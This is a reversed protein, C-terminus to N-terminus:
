YYNKQILQSLTDNDLNYSLVCVVDDDIKKSKGSSWEYLEGKYNTLSYDILYLVRGDPTLSFDYVDDHIKKSKGDSYVKLTGYEKEENYDTLYYINSADEDYLTIYTTVDYDILSKNIYFDGKSNDVDKYYMIKKDTIFRYYSDHVETDYLEPTGVKGNKISIKYLDGCREEEPINDLFYVATGSDNIVYYSSNNHEINNAKDKVAVNLASNESMSIQIQSEVSYVSTIESLNIKNFNSLDSSKYIIVPSDVAYNYSSNYLFSDTVLKETSGDFYYLSYTSLDFEYTELSERLDDRDMKDYYADLAASYEDYAVEYANYAAEYEDYTDYNWSYPYDPMIPYTILSDSEKMDDNVFDMISNTSENSKLYYLEGSDYITLVKYIESVIKSKDKGEVYKYLADEKTFYVATLKDNCKILKEVDSVIKEKDKKATKIYIENDFNIYVVKKGDDTVYFTEVESAIKDKTDTKINYQYLNGEDDDKLYTVIDASDNVNYNIISSDIKVSKSDSKLTKYYLNFGDDSDSLKDPYFLKKGDKSLYTYYGIAYSADAIDENDISSDSSIFNDTIQFPKADKKLSTYMIEKDKIYLAYNNKSGGGSVLSVILVIIGVLATIIIGAAVVAGAIIFPKKSFIKKSKSISSPKDELPAVETSYTEVHNSEVPKVEEPQKVITIIAAGCKQCFSDGSKIENGCSTCFAKKEVDVPTGCSICVKADDNLEANCNNCIKM